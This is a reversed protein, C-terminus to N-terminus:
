QVLTRHCRNNFGQFIIRCLVDNCQRWLSRPPTEFWWDLSQEILRKNLRLRFFVEFSHTVPRQAPFEGSVPSNGACIALLAYFTEMLHRWWTMESILQQCIQMKLACLLMTIYWFIYSNAHSAEDHDHLINQSLRHPCLKRFVKVIDHFGICNLSSFGKLQHPKIFNHCQCTIMDTIKYPIYNSM